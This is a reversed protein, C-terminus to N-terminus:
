FVDFFYYSKLFELNMYMYRNINIEIEENKLEKDKILLMLCRNRSLKRRWKSDIKIGSSTPHKPTSVM